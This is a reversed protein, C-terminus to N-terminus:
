EEEFKYDNINIRSQESADQIKWDIEKFFRQVNLAVPGPEDSIVKDDWKLVSVCANGGLLM